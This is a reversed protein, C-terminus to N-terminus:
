ESINDRLVVEIKNKSSLAMQHIKKFDEVMLGGELVDKRSLERKVGGKDMKYASGTAHIWGKVTSKDSEEDVPNFEFVKLYRHKMLDCAEILVQISNGERVARVNVEVIENDKIIKSKVGRDSIDFETGEPHIFIANRLPLNYGLDVLVENGSVKGVTVYHFEWGSACSYVDASDLLGDKVYRWETFAAIDRCTGQQGKADEWKMAKTLAPISPVSLELSSEGFNTKIYDPSLVLSHDYSIQGSDLDDQIRCDLETMRSEFSDVEAFSEGMINFNVFDEIILDAKFVKDVGKASCLNSSFTM